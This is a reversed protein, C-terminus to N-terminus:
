RTALASDFVIQISNQFGIGPTSRQAIMGAQVMCVLFFVLFTDRHGGSPFLLLRLM